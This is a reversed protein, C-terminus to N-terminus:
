FNLNDSAEVLLEKSYVFNYALTSFTNVPFMTKSYIECHLRGNKVNDVYICIRQLAEVYTLSVFCAKSIIHM